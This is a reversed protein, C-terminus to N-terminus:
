VYHLINPNTNALPFRPATIVQKPKPPNIKTENSDLEVLAMAFGMLADYAEELENNSLERGVRGSLITQLRSASEPTLLSM